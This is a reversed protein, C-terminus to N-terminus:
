LRQLMVYPMIKYLISGIDNMISQPLQVVLYVFKGTSLGQTNNRGIYFEWTMSEKPLLQGTEVSDLFANLDTCVMDWCECSSIQM